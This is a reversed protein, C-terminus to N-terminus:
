NRNASLLLAMAQEYLAKGYKGENREFERAERDFREKDKEAAILYQQKQQANLDQWTNMMEVYVQRFTINKDYAWPIQNEVIYDEFFMSRATQPLVPAVIAKAKNATAMAFVVDLLVSALTICDCRHM